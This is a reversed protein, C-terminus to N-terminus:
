LNILKGHHKANRPDWVGCCILILGMTIFFEVGFAKWIDIGNGPMTM